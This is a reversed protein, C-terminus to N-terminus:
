SIYISLINLLIEVSKDMKEATIYECPGHFNFGGTGLNPCPLGMFSLRAGDTGGRIPVIKPELGAQKVALQANEILHYHPLIEQEMNYYSDKLELVATGAGYKANIADAAATMAAKRANFKEMDHDRIIYELKAESVTGSMECLHYFGETGETHEPREDAPLMAHLEVAINQANKMLDKASGPHVSFGHITVFASAANFNQYELEGVDGGDVTYAYDAGFGKVDFLDAGEGVEEDPTFAVCVKGHAIGEKQLREVATLIEAIGAKDDAGLLTTGDATILTQGKWNALEPFQAVRMYEGTGTFLVDGGDYNEIVQPKVNEGPADPATDMHAILGIAPKDELGPTAPLVGYVYCNEDVRVDQLGLEKMQQELLRALDFQRATSPHTASHDDSTTYIKAYDLFREYARM